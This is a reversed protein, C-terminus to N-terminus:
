KHPINYKNTAYTSGDKCEQLLVLKIMTYSRKLTNNFETQLYKNLIKWRHKMLSIPTYTEKTCTHGQETKTDTIASAYIRRYVASLIWGQYFETRFEDTGPRKKTSLSQIVSKIKNRTISRNLHTKDEQTLKHLDYPDLFKNM